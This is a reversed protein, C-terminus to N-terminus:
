TPSMNENGECHSQVYYVWIFRKQEKHANDCPIKRLKTKKKGNLM